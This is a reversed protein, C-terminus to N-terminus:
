MHVGCGGHVGLWVVAYKGRKRVRPVFVFFLYPLPVRLASIAGLITLTWRVSLNSHFPTAYAQSGGAAVYRILTVSALTSTPFREYSDIIYQCSEIPHRLCLVNERGISVLVLHAPLYGVGKLAASRYLRHMAFGLGSEPPLRSGGGAKIKALGSLLLGASHFSM